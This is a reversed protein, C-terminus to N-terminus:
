PGDVFLGEVPPPGPAELLALAQVIVRRQAARDGPRALPYGFAFPAHLVRPPRVARTIEECVSVSVTSMGATELAGQILGM